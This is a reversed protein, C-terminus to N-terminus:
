EVRKGPARAAHQACDLFDEHSVFRESPLGLLLQAPEFAEVGGHTRLAEELGDEAQLAAEREGLAVQPPQVREKGREGFAAALKGAEAAVASRKVLKRLLGVVE